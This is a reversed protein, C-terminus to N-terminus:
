LMNRKKLFSFFLEARKWDDLDDIDHSLYDPIIIGKSNDSFINKNKMFSEYKGWYFQGVDHYSDQLLNSTKHLKGKFFPKVLNTNNIKLSRQIPYNYKVIPFAFNIKKNKIYSLGKKLYSQKIFPATPYICCVYKFNIKYKRYFELSHKVVENSHSYDDSIKKPRLFPVEAGYKSAINAIKNSDTSVIIKDFLNSNQAIKIPYSIIPFNNFKKINKEKIRKSGIRAPIIAISKM